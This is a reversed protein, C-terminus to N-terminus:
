RCETLMKNAPTVHHLQIIVSQSIANRWMRMATPEQYGEPWTPESSGSKTCPCPCSRACDRDWSGTGSVHALSIAWVMHGLFIIWRTMKLRQLSHMWFAFTEHLSFFDEQGNQVRFQSCKFISFICFGISSGVVAICRNLVNWWNWLDVEEEAAKEAAAKEAADKEAALAALFEAAAAAAAKKASLEEGAMHIVVPRCTDYAVTNILCQWWGFLPMRHPWMALYVLFISLCIWCTGKWKELWRLRSASGWRAEAPTRWMGKQPARGGRAGEATAGIGRWEPVLPEFLYQFAFLWTLKEMPCQIRTTMDQKAAPKCHNASCLSDVFRHVIKQWAGCTPSRNSLQPHSFGECQRACCVCVCIIQNRSPDILRHSHTCIEM